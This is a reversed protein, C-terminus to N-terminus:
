HQEVGIPDPALGRRRPALRPISFGACVDIAHRSLRHSHPSATPLTGRLPAPVTASAPAHCVFFFVAADDDNDNDNTWPFERFAMLEKPLNTRLGAYM